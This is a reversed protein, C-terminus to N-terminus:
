LPWFCGIPAPVSHGKMTGIKYPQRLRHSYCLNSERVVDQRLSDRLVSYRVRPNVQVIHLNMSKCYSLKM